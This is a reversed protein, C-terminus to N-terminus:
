NTSHSRTGSTEPEPHWYDWWWSQEKKHLAQQRAALEVVRQALEQQLADEMMQGFECTMCQFLRSCLRHSVDGKIAYRCLRDIGPLEKLKALAQELEPTSGSAVKEQMEQDFECNMCNYDNTCLRYSVMGLSMWVCYTPKAEESVEDAPRALAEKAKRIWVRTEISAPAVALVAELERLAETYEAGLFHAKGQRLHVSVDQPAIAIVEPTKAEEPNAVEKVPEEAPAEPAATVPPTLTERILKEIHELDVPKQLYDIVGEKGAEVATQISPYATIIIGRLGPRKARAERLVTIGDKGPLRLDLIAVGIDREAITRLAEEGEGATEVDYGSDTLWDRLSERMITEDEVILVRKKTEQKSCGDRLSIKKVM